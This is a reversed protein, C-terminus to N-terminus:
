AENTPMEGGGEMANTINTSGKKVQKIRHCSTAFVFSRQLWYLGLGAMM